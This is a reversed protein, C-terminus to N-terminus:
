DQLRPLRVIGGSPIVAPKAILGIADRDDWRRVLLPGVGAAAAFDVVAPTWVDALIAV